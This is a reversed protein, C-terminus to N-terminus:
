QQEIEVWKLEQINIPSKALVKKFSDHISSVVDGTIAIPHSSISISSLITGAPLDIGRPVIIEFSGGGRGSLEVSADGNTISVNIKEGPTSYLVIKATHEYVERVTGLLINGNGFVLAGQKINNDSGIDVILTDYASINPRVLITALILNSNVSRNLINKLKLNEDRLVSTELIDNQSIALDKKLQENEWILSNKSKFFSKISTDTDSFYNGTSWFPYAIRHFFGSQGGGNRSLFSFIIIIFLSGLLFYIPKPISKKKNKGLSLQMNLM